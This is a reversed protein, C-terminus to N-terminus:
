LRTQQSLLGYKLEISFCLYVRANFPDHGWDKSCSISSMKRKLSLNLKRFDVVVRITGDKKHIAFTPYCSAWESSNDEALVGIDVLRVIKKSQQLEQKV